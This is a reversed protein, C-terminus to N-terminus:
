NDRFSITRTRNGSHHGDTSKNDDKRKVLISNRSNKQVYSIIKDNFNQGEDLMFRVKIPLMYLNEKIEDSISDLAKLRTADKETTIILKPSPMAEFTQQIRQLDKAKFAHHDGFFM